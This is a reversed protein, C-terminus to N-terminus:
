WNGEILEILIRKYQNLNNRLEDIEDLHEEKWENSEIRKDVAKDFEKIGDFIKRLPTEISQNPDKYSM